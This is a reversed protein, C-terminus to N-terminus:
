RVFARVQDFRGASLDDRRMWVFLRNAEGLDLALAEDNSVQLLLVWEDAGPALEEHLVHAFPEDELDIGHAVLEADLEM